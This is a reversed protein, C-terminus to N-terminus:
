WAVTVRPGIVMEALGADERTPDSVMSPVATCGPVGQSIENV